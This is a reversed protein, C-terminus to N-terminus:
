SWPSVRAKHDLRHTCNRSAHHPKSRNALASSRIRQVDVHQAGEPCTGLLIAVMPRHATRGQAHITRAARRKIVSAHGRQRKGEVESGTTRLESALIEM